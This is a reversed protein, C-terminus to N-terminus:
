IKLMKSFFPCSYVLSSLYLKIVNNCKIYDIYNINYKM